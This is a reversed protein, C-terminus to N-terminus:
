AVAPYADRWLLFIQGVPAEVEAKDWAILNRFGIGMQFASDAMDFIFGQRRNSASTNVIDGTDAWSCVIADNFYASYTKTTPNYGIGVRDTENWGLLANNQWQARVSSYTTPSTGNRIRLWNNGIGTVVELVAYNTMADNSMIVIGSRGYNPEVLTAEAYQKNSGYEKKNYLIASTGAFPGNSLYRSPTIWPFQTSGFNWFDYGIIVKGHKTDFTNPIDSYKINTIKETWAQNTLAPVMTNVNDATWRVFNPQGPFLRLQDLYQTDGILKASINTGDSLIARRSWPYSNVEFAEGEGIDIDLVVQQEGITIVPTELPGYGIIRLWSASQGGPVIMVPDEGQIIEYGSEEDDYCLTDARQFEAHVTYFNTHTSSKSTQFKRPRGYVVVVNGDKTCYKLPVMEGWSRRYADGRWMQALNHIANTGMPGAPYETEGILSAMNPIERFDLAGMEFIIPGPVFSDIGFQMEDSRILQSDQAQVNYGQFEVSSVPYITGRGFKIGDEGLQYQGPSLNTAM